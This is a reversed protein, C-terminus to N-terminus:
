NPNRRLLYVAPELGQPSEVLITVAKEEVGLPIMTSVVPTGPSAHRSFTLVDGSFVGWNTPAKLHLVNGEVKVIEIPVYDSIACTIEYEDRVGNKGTGGAGVWDSWVCFVSTGVEFTLREKLVRLAYNQEIEVLKTDGDYVARFPIEVKVSARCVNKDIVASLGGQVFKNM